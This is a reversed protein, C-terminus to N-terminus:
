VRDVRNKTLMEQMDLNLKTKLCNCECLALFTDIRLSQQFLQAMSYFFDRLLTLAGRRCEYKKLFHQMVFQRLDSLPRRCSWISGQKSIKM